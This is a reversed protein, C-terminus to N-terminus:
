RDKKRAAIEFLEALGVDPSCAIGEREFSERMLSRLSPLLTDLKRIADEQNNGMKRVANLCGRIVVLKAYDEDLSVKQLLQVAVNSGAITDNMAISVLGEFRSLYWDPDDQSVVTVSSVASLLAEQLRRPIVQYCADVMDFADEVSISKLSLEGVEVRDFINSPLSEGRVSFGMNILMAGSTVRITFRSGKFTDIGHRQLATMRFLEQTTTISVPSEPVEILAKVPDQTNDVLSKSSLNFTSIVDRPDLRYSTGKGEYFGYREIMHPLLRSCRIYRGNALNMIEIDECASTGDKFPSLQSGRWAHKVVVMPTGRWTFRPQPYAIAYKLPEAIQQHTLGARQVFDNDAVLVELLSENRGLFGADSLADPRMSKELDGIPINNIAKLDRITDSSNRGGVVFGSDERRESFPAIGLEAPSPERLYHLSSIECGGAPSASIYRARFGDTLVLAQSPAEDASARREEFGIPLLQAAGPTPDVTGVLLPLLCKGWLRTIVTIRTGRDNFDGRFIGGAADVERFGADELQRRIPLDEGAEEASTARRWTYSGRYYTEVLEAGESSCYTLIFGLGDKSTARRIGVPEGEQAVRPWNQLLSYREEELLVLIGNKEYIGSNGIEEFGVAIFRERVSRQPTTLHEDSGPTPTLTPDM